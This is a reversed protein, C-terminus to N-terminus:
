FSVVMSAYADEWPEVALVPIGDAGSPPVGDRHTPDTLPKASVGALESAQASADGSRHSLPSTSPVAKMMAMDLSATVLPLSPHAAAQLLFTEVEALRSDQATLADAPSLASPPDSPSPPVAACVGASTKQVDGNADTLSQPMIRQEHTRASCNTEGSGSQCTSCAAATEAATTGCAHGYKCPTSRLSTPPETGCTTCSVAHSSLTVEGCEACTWPSYCLRACVDEAGRRGGCGATRCHREWSPYYANCMLCRWVFVTDVPVGPALAACRRCALESNFPEGCEHCGWLRGREWTTAPLRRTGCATCYGDEARLLFPLLAQSSSPATLHVPTSLQGDARDRVAHTTGCHHCLWPQDAETSLLAHVAAVATCACHPCQVSTSPVRGQCAPCRVLRHQAVSALVRPHPYHCRDCADGRRAVVPAGRVSQAHNCHTCTVTPQQAARSCAHCYAHLASNYAGCGCAWTFAATYYGPETTGCSRCSTTSFVAAPAGDPTKPLAASYPVASIFHCDSCVYVVAGPGEEELADSAESLRDQAANQCSRSAVHAEGADVSAGMRAHGGDWCCRVVDNTAVRAKSLPPTSTSVLASKPRERQRRLTVAGMHPHGKSSTAGCMHADRVNPTQVLIGLHSVLPHAEGCRLCYPLYVGSSTVNHCSTCEWSLPTLTRLVCSVCAVSFADGPHVGTSISENEFGCGCRWSVPSSPATTIHTAVSDSDAQVRDVTLQALLASAVKIAEDAPLHSQLTSPARNQQQQQQQLWRLKWLVSIPEGHLGLPRGIETAWARLRGWLRQTTLFVKPQSVLPMLCESFLHYGVTVLGYRAAEGVTPSRRLAAWVEQPTSKSPHVLLRLRHLLEAAEEDADTIPTRVGDDTQQCDATSKRSRASAPIVVAVAVSLLYVGLLGDTPGYQLQAAKTRMSERAATVLCSIFTSVEHATPPALLKHVGGHGPTLSQASMNRLTEVTCRLADGFREAEANDNSVWVCVNMLISVIQRWPQWIGDEPTSGSPTLSVSQAKRCRQLFQVRPLLFRLHRLTVAWQEGADSLGSYRRGPLTAYYAALDVDMLLATTTLQQRGTRETPQAADPAAIDGPCRAHLSRLCVFTEEEEVCSAFLEAFLIASNRHQRYLIRLKRLLIPPTLTRVVVEAIVDDRRQQLPVEESTVLEIDAGERVSSIQSHRRVDAYFCKFLLMLQPHVSDRLQEPTGTWLAHSRLAFFLDHWVKLLEKVTVPPSNAFASKVVSAAIGTWQGPAATSMDTVTYVTVPAAVPPAPPAAPRCSMAPAAPSVCRHVETHRDVKDQSRDQASWFNEVASSRNGESCHNRCSPRVAEASTSLTAANWLWPMLPRYTFAPLHRLAGACDEGSLARRSHLRVLVQLWLSSNLHNLIAHTPPLSAVDGGCHLSRRWRHHRKRGGVPATAPAAAPMVSTSSTLQPKVGTTGVGGASPAGFLADTFEAEVYCAFDSGVGAGTGSSSLPLSAAVAPARGHCRHPHCRLVGGQVLPKRLYM